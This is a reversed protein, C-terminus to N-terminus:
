AGSAVATYVRNPSGNREEFGYGLGRMFQAVADDRGEVILRAQWRRLM